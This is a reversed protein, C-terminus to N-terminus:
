GRTGPNRPRASITERGGKGDIRSKSKAPKAAVSRRHAGVRVGQAGLPAEGGRGGGGGAEGDDGGHQGRQPQGTPSLSRPQILVSPRDRRPARAVRDARHRYPPRIITRERSPRSACRRLRAFARHRARGTRRALRAGVADKVRPLSGIPSATLAFSMVRQALTQVHRLGILLEARDVTDAASRLGTSTRARGSLHSGAVSAALPPM